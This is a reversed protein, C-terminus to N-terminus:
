DTLAAAAPADVAVVVVRLPKWLSFGFPSPVLPSEPQWNHFDIRHSAIRRAGIVADLFKWLALRIFINNM